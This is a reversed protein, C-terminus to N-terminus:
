VGALPRVECQFDAIRDQLDGEKGPSCLFDVLNHARTIKDIRINNDAIASQIWLQRIDLHKLTGAGHRLLIGKTASADIGHSLTLPEGCLFRSVHHLQLLEAVGKCASKLEAEASSPAVRDQLKCWFHVVHCGHLLLGGSKSRRTCHCSAWDSDTMLRLETPAPQWYFHIVLRPRGRVYRLIRKLTSVDEMEPKAM